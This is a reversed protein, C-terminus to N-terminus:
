EVLGVLACGLMARVPFRMACRLPWRLTRGFPWRMQFRAPQLMLLSVTVSMQGGPIVAVM